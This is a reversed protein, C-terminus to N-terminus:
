RPRARVTVREPLTFKVERQGRQPLSEDIIYSYTIRISDERPARELRWSSLNGIAEHAFLDTKGLPVGSTNAVKIGAIRGDRTVVGTLTVDGSIRSPYADRAYMVTDLALLCRGAMELRCHPVAIAPLKIQTDEELDDLLGLPKIRIYEERKEYNYSYVAHLQKAWFLTDVAGSSKSNPPPGPDGLAIDGEYNQAADASTFILITVDKRKTNQKKLTEALCVARRPSLDEMRVSIAMFMRSDSAQWVRGEHYTPSVCQAAANSAVFFAFYGAV